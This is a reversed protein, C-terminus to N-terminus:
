LENVKEQTMNAGAKVFADTFNWSNCMYALTEMVKEREDKYEKTVASIMKYARTPIKSTFSKKYINMALKIASSTPPVILTLCIHGYAISWKFEVQINKSNKAM